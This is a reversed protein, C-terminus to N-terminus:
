FDRPLQGQVNVFVKLAQCPRPGVMNCKVGVERMRTAGIPEPWLVKRENNVCVESGRAGPSRHM